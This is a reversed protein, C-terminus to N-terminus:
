IIFYKPTRPDIGSYAILENYRQDIFERFTLNLNSNIYEYFLDIFIIIDRPGDGYNFSHYNNLFLFSIFTLFILIPFFLNLKSNM